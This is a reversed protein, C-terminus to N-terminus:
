RLRAIWSTYSGPEVNLTTVDAAAISSDTIDSSAGISTLAPM